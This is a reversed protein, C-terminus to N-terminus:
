PQGCRKTIKSNIFKVELWERELGGQEQRWVKERGGDKCAGRLEPDGSMSSSRDKLSGEEVWGGWIVHSSM